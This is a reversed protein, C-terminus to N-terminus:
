RGTTWHGDYFYLSVNHVTHIHTHREPHPLHIYPSCTWEPHTQITFLRVVGVERSRTFTGDLDCPNTQGQVHPAVTLGTPEPTILVDLRDPGNGKERCEFVPWVWYVGVGEDTRLRGPRSTIRLQYGLLGVGRSRSLPPSFLPRRLPIGPTVWKQRRGRTPHFGPCYDKLM